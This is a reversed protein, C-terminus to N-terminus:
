MFILIFFQELVTHVTCYQGFFALAQPLCVILRNFSAFDVQSSERAFQELVSCIRSELRVNSLPVVLPLSNGLSLM